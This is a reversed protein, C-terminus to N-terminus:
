KMVLYKIYIFRPYRRVDIKSACRQYCCSVLISLRWIPSPILFVVEFLLRGGLSWFWFAMFSTYLFDDALASNECRVIEVRCGSLKDAM